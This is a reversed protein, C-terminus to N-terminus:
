KGQKTGTGFVYKRDKVLYEVFSKSYGNVIKVFIEMLCVKSHLWQINQAYKKKSKTNKSLGVKQM